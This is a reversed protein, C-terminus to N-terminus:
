FFTAWSYLINLIRPFYINDPALINVIIYYLTIGLAHPYAYLYGGPNLGSFNGTLIQRAIGYFVEWDATLNIRFYYIVLVQFVVVAFYLLWGRKLLFNVSRKKLFLWLFSYALVGLCIGIILFLPNQKILLAKDGYKAM